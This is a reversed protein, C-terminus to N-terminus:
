QFSVGIHIGYRSLEHLFQKRSNYLIVKLGRNRARACNGEHDDIFLIEQPKLKLYRAIDDFQSPERKSKGLYYSSFVVDFYKFFDCQVNLEDLWDTQDSLIGVKMGESKLVKVLDIMWPRVVFRSLIERRLLANTGHIGTRKRLEQWFDEERGKGTVYKTGHVVDFGIKTLIEPSLDYKQAIAKLGNVFGEEALVGGFDFLIM